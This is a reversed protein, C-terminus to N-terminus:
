DKERYNAVDAERVTSAGDGNTVLLYRVVSAIKKDSYAHGFAPMRITGSAGRVNIGRVVAAMANLGEPDNVSRNGRLPFPTPTGAGWGHCGACLGAYIIKGEPEDASNKMAGPNAAPPNSAVVVDSAGSPVQKLYTAIATLDALSLHSLSNEVVQKMSGGAVGRGAAHGNRMYAVLEERSWAGIGSVPDGTINYARLHEIEAGALAQGGKEAFFLNKPTHCGGCHGPGEVLYAGRNLLSSRSPDPQFRQKSNFLLNWYAIAWTQNFPFVITPRPTPVPVPRQSFLYAKIALIDAIPMKTYNVYPMAPYLHRGGRSIGRTMSAIFDADSWRGIGFTPDPTINSGYVTGFPLHMPYGGAFPKQDNVTHCSACGAAAALYAGRAVLAPTIQQDQLPTEAMESPADALWRLPLAAAAALCLLVLLCLGITRLYKM